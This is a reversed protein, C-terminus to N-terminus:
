FTQDTSVRSVHVIGELYELSEGMRVTFPCEHYSKVVAEILLVNMEAMM